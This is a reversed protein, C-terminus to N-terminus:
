GCHRQHRVLARPQSQIGRGRIIVQFVTVSSLIKARSPVNSEGGEQGGGREVGREGMEM